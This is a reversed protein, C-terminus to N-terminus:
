AIRPLRAGGGRRAPRARALLGDEDRPVRADRGAEHRARARRGGTTPTAATAIVADVLGRELLLAGLRTTIGDVASRRAARRMRARLMELYPGFFREDRRAGDRARGHVQAELEEYRPHIFQCAAGCPEAVVLAVRRLRHV